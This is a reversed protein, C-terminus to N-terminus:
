YVYLHQALEFATDQEEFATVEARKVLCYEQALEVGLSAVLVADAQLADLAEALTRPLRRIGRQCRGNDSLLAPNYGVPPGPHLQRAIGDLGAALLGGLALYPNCSPDCPRFELNTSAMERHWFPSPIRVAAERNDPGYCGYASSWVHPQLRRYSNVSPATLAVLAPLHALVGGIFHYGMPSLQLSDSADAFLNREGREDWLSVHMHCGSGAQDAFPKPALSALLGHQRAVGRVTDRFALQNDAATLGSTHRISIEQQGPGHEPHYQEVHIGQASLAEVVATIVAASNDMGASSYLRSTDYPLSQGDVERLLYFENEFAVQVRIGHQAAQTLMQQLFYRPCVPWPQQDLQVLNCFLRAQRPAYPVVAFTEPAPLLRVEGVPGFRGEPTLRDLMTFSQMAMPLGIGEILRRELHDVHTAKGRIVGDNGCYLFRVLLVGTQRAQRVAEQPTVGAEEM